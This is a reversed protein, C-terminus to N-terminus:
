RDFCGRASPLLVFCLPLLVCRKCYHIPSSGSPRTDFLLMHFLRTCALITRLIARGHASASLNHRIRGEPLLERARRWAGRGYNVRSPSCLFPSFLVTRRAKYALCIYRQISPADARLNLHDRNRKAGM